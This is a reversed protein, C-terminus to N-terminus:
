QPLSLNLFVLVKFPLECVCLSAYPSFQTNSDLNNHCGKPKPKPPPIRVGASTAIDGSDGRVVGKKTVKCGIILARTRNRFSNSHNRYAHM